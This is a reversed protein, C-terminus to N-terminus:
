AAKDLRRVMFPLREADEVAMTRTWTRAAGDWKFGAAKAEDKREFPVMAQFLGKPRMAIEFMGQLDEMRDFLSAILRCDTLARHASAVGIGHDLALNVLSGQERTALPWKFDSMTCLWPRDPLGLASAAILRSDFEANHAIYADACMSMNTLMERAFFTSMEEVEALAAVSIRNIKEADNSEAPLLSSFEQLSCQNTVSYLIAGVEIIVADDELGNTETDIILCRNIEM